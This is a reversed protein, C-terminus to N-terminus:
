EVCLLKNGRTQRTLSLFHYLPSSLASGQAQLLFTLLTPCAQSLGVWAEAALLCVFRAPARSCSSLAWLLLPRRRLWRLCALCGWISEINSVREPKSGKVRQVGEVPHVAQQCGEEWFQINKGLSPRSLDVERTRYWMCKNLIFLLPQLM